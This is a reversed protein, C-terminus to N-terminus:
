RCDPSYQERGYNKGIPMCSEAKLDLQSARPRFSQGGAGCLAEANEDGIWFDAQTWTELVSNSQSTQMDWTRKRPIFRLGSGLGLKM